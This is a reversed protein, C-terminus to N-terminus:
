QQYTQVEALSYNHMIIYHHMLAAVINYELFTQCHSTNVFYNILEVKNKKIITIYICANM